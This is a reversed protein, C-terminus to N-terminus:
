FYAGSSSAYAAFVTGDPSCAVSTWHNSPAATTTWNSGSDSSAYVYGYGGQGGAAAILHSGDASCAIASWNTTPAGTPSWTQAFTVPISLVLGSLALVTPSNM